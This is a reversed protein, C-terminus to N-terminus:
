KIRFKHKDFFILIPCAIEQTIKPYLGYLQQNVILVDNTKSDTQPNQKVYDLVTPILDKNNIVWFYISRKASHVVPYGNIYKEPYIIDNSTKPQAYRDFIRIMYQVCIHYPFPNKGTNIFKTLEGLRSINGSSALLNQNMDTKLVSLNDFTCDFRKQTQFKMNINRKTEEQGGQKKCTNFILM